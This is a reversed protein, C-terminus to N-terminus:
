VNLIYFEAEKGIIEINFSSFSTKYALLVFEPM